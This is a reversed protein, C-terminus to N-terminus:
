KIFSFPVVQGHIVWWVRGSDVVPETPLTACGAELLFLLEHLGRVAQQGCWM